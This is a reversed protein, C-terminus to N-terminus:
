IINIRELHTRLDDGEPKHLGQLGLQKAAEVFDQHDDIFLVTEPTLGENNLISLFGEPKPKRYGLEHSYYAAKFIEPVWDQMDYQEKLYKKLWKIHTFNTNSFIYLEYDRKLDYLLDFTEQRIGLLMANWAKILDYAQTGAKANKILYNLFLEESIQGSGYKLFVANSKKDFPDYDITLLHDLATQTKSYDLDLIVNGLDFLLSTIKKHNM